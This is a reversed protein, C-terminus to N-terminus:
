ARSGSRRWRPTRACRRRRRRLQDVDPLVPGTDLENMLYFLAARVVHAGPQPDRWPLSTVEREVGLRLMWHM